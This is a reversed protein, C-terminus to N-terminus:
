RRASAIVGGPGICTLTSRAPSLPEVGQVLPPLVYPVTLDLEQGDREVRMQMPGPMAMAVAAKYVDEFLGTDFLNRVALNLQEPTM